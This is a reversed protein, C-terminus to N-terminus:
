VITHSTLTPRVQIEYTLSEYENQQRKFEEAERLRQEQLGQAWKLHSIDAISGMISVVEGAVSLEPQSSALVWYEIPEGDLDRPQAKTNGLQLERTAPKRTTMMYHWMEVAVEQSKEEFLVTFSFVDNQERPHGTMEFYRENGELLRGESDFLYMGLPSLETMRRMRSTQLQLQQSLQERQMTALEAALKSQRMENEFLLVSALSTAIQRNLMATFSRYESDYARRPNIGLLLLACVNDANTPRLPLIMAERCPDEYGRWEIGQLLSKPLTGNKTSLMTPETTLMAERFAPVMAQDCQKLDFKDPSISHGQPVCISGELVCSKTSIPTGASCRSHDDPDDSDVVSYLLAFPV